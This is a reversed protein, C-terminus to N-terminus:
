QDKHVTPVLPFSVILPKEGFFVKPPQCKKQYKNQNGLIMAM